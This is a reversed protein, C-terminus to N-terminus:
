IHILSLQQELRQLVKFSSFFRDIGDEGLDLKKPSGCQVSYLRRRGVVTYRGYLYFATQGKTRVTVVERGAYGDVSVPLYSITRAGAQTGLSELSLEREIEADSLMRPFDCYTVGVKTTVDGVTFRGTELQADFHRHDMRGDASNKTETQWVEPLGPLLIEFDGEAPKAVKWQTYDIPTGPSDDHPLVYSRRMPHKSEFLRKLTLIASRPMSPKGTEPNALADNLISVAKEFDGCEAHAIALTARFQATDDASCAETSFHVAREGDRHSPTTCTAYEYAMNNQLKSLAGADLAAALEANDFDGHMKIAQALDECATFEANSLRVAEILDSAALDFDHKRFYAQGRYRFADAQEPNGDISSTLEAIAQDLNGKELSNKGRTFPLEGRSWLRYIGAIYQLNDDLYHDLAAKSKAVVPRRDDLIHRGNQSAVVHVEANREVYESLSNFLPTKCYGYFADPIVTKSFSATHVEEGGVTVAIRFNVAYKSTDAGEAERQPAESDMAIYVEISDGKHEAGTDRIILDGEQLSMAAVYARREQFQRWWVPARRRLRPGFIVTGAVVAVICLMIILGRYEVPILPRLSKAVNVTTARDDRNPNDDSPM